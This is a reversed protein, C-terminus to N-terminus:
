VSEDVLQRGVEREVGESMGELGRRREGEM